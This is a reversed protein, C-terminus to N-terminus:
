RDALVLEWHEALAKLDELQDVSDPLNEPERSDVQVSALDELVLDVQGVEVMEQEEVAVQM